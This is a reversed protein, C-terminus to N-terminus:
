FRCDYIRKRVTPASGREGLEGLEGHEGKPHHFTLNQNLKSWHVSLRGLFRTITKTM